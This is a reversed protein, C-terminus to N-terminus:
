SIPSIIFKLSLWTLTYRCLALNSSFSIKGERDNITFWGNINAYQPDLGYQRGYWANQVWSNGNWWDGVFNNYDYIEVGSNNEKWRKETLSDGEINDGFNDQIPVGLSDQIPNEYPNITLNNAPYIPHKVGRHDIWSMKVYNVYDQPIPVSLNNPVTLEQSKMSRLTDYSFEQM